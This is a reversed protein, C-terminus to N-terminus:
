DRRRRLGLLLLALMGAGAPSPASTCGCGDEEAMYPPLANGGASGGGGTGGVDDDEDDPGDDGGDDGGSTGATTNSTSSGPECDEDDPDCQADDVVYVTGDALLLMFVEDRVDTGEPLDDLVNAPWDQVEVQDLGWAESAGASAIRRKFGADIWWLTADSGDDIRAVVPEEPFAEGSDLADAEADTTARGDWFPSLGWASLAEPGSVRRRVGDPITPPDCSFDNADDLETVTGGDVGVGYAHVAHPTGDQLSRPLEVSFGHNCSGLSDCLEPREIDAIVEIGVANPDDSPGDFFVRVPISAEPEAEDQAWGVIPSCGEQSAAGVVEAGIGLLEEYSEVLSMYPSVFIFGLGAVDQKINYHLHITTPTGGFENSVKNIRDGKAMSQGSSIINGSGHLYDHRTGNATTVYVSYSGINTITGAEAAVNWYLSDDCTAPRIDQGQHGQGSPCLPMSWSRTECYNDRWPYSYNNEHCQGGSPGSGGGHGWVQSNPYSPGEEMPYRMGPAYVTYDEAGNGSGPTLDGPELYTFDSDAHATAPVALVLALTLTKAKM